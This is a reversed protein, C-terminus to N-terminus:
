KKPSLTKLPNRGNPTFFDGARKRRETAPAGWGEGEHSRDRM